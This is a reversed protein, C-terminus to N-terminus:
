HKFARIYVRGYRLKLITELDLTNRIMREAYKVIREYHRRCLYVRRGDIVLILDADRSCRAYRCKEM